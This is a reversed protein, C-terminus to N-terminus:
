KKQTDVWFKLLLNRAMVQRGAVNARADSIPTFAEDILPMAKMVVARTWSKGLLYEEAHAASQTMAAMGGYILAIKKVRNSSDLDLRFGASVTSIDLDKRRSIKYAKIQTHASLKPIRVYTIVENPKLQTQRYGTIFDRV